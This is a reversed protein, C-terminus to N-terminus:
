VRGYDQEGARFYLLGVVFAVATSTLVSIWAIRGAPIGLIAQRNLAPFAYLPNLKMMANLVPDTVRGDITYLIGSAYFLLRFVFPLINQLDRLQTTLRAVFFALGLNFLIQVALVPLLMLWSWGPAEGTLLAIVVMLGVAPLYAATQGLVTALPLIARPFQISTILGDNAVISRAGAKVSKNSYHFTFVGITLFGLFNDLGRSTNLLVGFVLFYVAVLLMPNLLHWLNGLVNDM